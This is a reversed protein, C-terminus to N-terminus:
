PAHKTRVRAQVRLGVAGRVDAARPHTALLAELLGDVSAGGGGGRGAGSRQTALCLKICAGVVARETCRRLAPASRAQRAHPQRLCPLAGERASACLRDYPPANDPQAPPAPAGHAPPAAASPLAAVPSLV